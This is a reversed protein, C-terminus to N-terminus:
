FHYLLISSGRCMSDSSLITAEDRNLQLEFDIANKTCFSVHHLAPQYNLYSLLPIYWQKWVIIRKDQFMGQVADFVRSFFSYSVFGM